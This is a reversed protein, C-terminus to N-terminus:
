PHSGALILRFRMPSLDINVAGVHPRPADLAAPLPLAPGRSLRTTATAYNRPYKTPPAMATPPPPKGISFHPPTKVLRNFEGRTHGQKAACPQDGLYAPLCFFNPTIYFIQHGFYMYSM